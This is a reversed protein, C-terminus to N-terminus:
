KVSISRTYYFLRTGKRENEALKTFKRVQKNCAIYSERGYTLFSVSSFLLICSTLVVTLKSFKFTICIM